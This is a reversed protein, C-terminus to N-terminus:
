GDKVENSKAIFNDLADRTIHIRRGVRTAKIQDHNIWWYINVKPIVRGTKDSLYKAAQKPTYTKM